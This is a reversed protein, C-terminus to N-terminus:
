NRSYTYDINVVNLDMRFCESKSAFQSEKISKEIMYHILSIDSYSNYNIDEELIDM